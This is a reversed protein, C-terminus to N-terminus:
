TQAMQSPTQVASPTPCKARERRAKKARHGEGVPPTDSPNLDRPHKRNGQPREGQNPPSGSFRAHPGEPNQPAPHWQGPTRISPPPEPHRMEASPDFSHPCHEGFVRKEFAPFFLKRRDRFQASEPWNKHSPHHRGLPNEWRSLNGRRRVHRHGDPNQQQQRAAAVVFSEKRSANKQRPPPQAPPSPPWGLFLMAQGM